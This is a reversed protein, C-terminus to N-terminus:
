SNHQPALSPSNNIVGFQIYAEMLTTLEGLNFGTDSGIAELTSFVVMGFLSTAKSRLNGASSPLYGALTEIILKRTAIIEESWPRDNRWLEALLLKAFSPHESVSRVLVQICTRWRESEDALSCSIDIAEALVTGGDSLLKGMLNSKSGYRYFLTGKAIGVRQAIEDMTTGSYDNESFLEIAARFVPIKTHGDKHEALLEGPTSATSNREYIM